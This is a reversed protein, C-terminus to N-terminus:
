VALFASLLQPSAAPSSRFVSLSSHFSRSFAEAARFKPPVILPDGSFYPTPRQQICPPSLPSQHQPLRFPRWCSSAPLSDESPVPGTSFHFQRFTPFLRSPGLSTPLSPPTYEEPSPLSQHPAKPQDVLNEFVFHPTPPPSFFYSKNIQYILPSCASSRVRFFSFAFSRGLDPGFSKFRLSATISLQFCAFHVARSGFESPLPPSPNAKLPGDGLLHRPPQARTPSPFPPPGSPSPLFTLPSHPLAAFTIWVCM